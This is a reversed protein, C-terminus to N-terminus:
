KDSESTSSGVFCAALTVLVILGAVVLFAIARGHGAFHALMVPTNM